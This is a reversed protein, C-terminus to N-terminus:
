EFSKVGADKYLEDSEYVVVAIEEKVTNFTFKGASISVADIKVNEHADVAYSDKSFAILDVAEDSEMFHNAIEKPNIPEFVHVSLIEGRTLDKIKRVSEFPVVVQKDDMPCILEVGDDSISGLKFLYIEKDGREVKFQNMEEPVETFMGLFLDDKSVNGEIIYKNM